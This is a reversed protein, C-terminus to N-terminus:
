AAEEVRGDPWINFKLEEKTDSWHKSVKRGLGLPVKFKYKYVRNLYDYVDMTMAQKAIETVEEIVDKRIKAAISDHITSMIRVPLGRTRHWFYVLAIPIIEGTAFGQVPFNYISTSNTIYGSRQMKTDPFYFTMGYPTTFQKQDCCKLAWGRQTSSIGEYKAKFYECYAKVADSGSGGGYLPRFTIAKADQRSTPEGADTMAKATFSHIDVGNEVEFLGVKDHGMDVAVRFELQASDYEVIDWGEEGSWFLLKFERPINQMQASMPKKKGKFLIPIGSSSLRGTKVVGQKFLGYFKCGKQECILRFYELNKELLSVQKNYAKYLSLFATQEENAARVKELTKVDTKISGLTGEPSGKKPKNRMENGKHDKPVPFKMVEFLFTGLQKPSGLNIGGTIAALQAGLDDRITIAKVYQEMVREQDLVLGEFELDALAVCCLNRTFALHWQKAKTLAVQQKLFVQKTAEVDQHCYEELWRPNIDRTSVGMKILKAVYDIKGKIGYRKAMGELSRDTPKNGDLAWQAMQTDYVLVDHLDLGCRKMRQIDFKANQAVVFSVNAIDDLLEQYEYIGGFHSAKKLVTGDPAVIQWCACVLDNEETLASGFDANDTEVDFVLYNSNRYVAEPDDIQLFWPLESM